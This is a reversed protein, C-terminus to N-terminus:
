HAVEVKLTTNDGWKVSWCTAVGNPLDKRAFVKSPPATELQTSTAAPLATAACVSSRRSTVRRRYLRRTRHPGADNAPDPDVEVKCPLAHRHESLGVLQNLDYTDVGANLTRGIRSSGGIGSQHQADPLPHGLPPCMM